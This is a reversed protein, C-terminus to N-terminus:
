IGRNSAADVEILDLSRGENIAICSVCANCPEGNKNRKECNLAKALLRAMTTKGTGRPGAFLYAHGVSDRLLAGQLTQIVHEQGEIEKFTKPRYKRYLM